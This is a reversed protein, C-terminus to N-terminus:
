QQEMEMMWVVRDFEQIFEEMTAQGDLYRNILGSVQGSGSSFIPSLAFTLCPAINERYFAIEEATTAWRNAVTTSLDDRAWQLEELLIDREEEIVNALRQELEDVRSQMYAVSRDYMMVEIPDNQDPTLYTRTTMRLQEVVYELLMVAIDANQSYPNVALVGMDAGIVPANGAMGLILPENDDTIYDRLPRYMGRSFLANNEVWDDWDNAKSLETLIPTIEELRILLARVGPTNFTPTEGAAQCGLVRSRYIMRFLDRRLDESYEFIKMGANAEAYDDHWAVIFDLLEEYSTPLMEASLGAKEMAAPYWSLMSAVEFRYPVACLRGNLYLEAILHEDMQGVADVLVESGSLDALYKKDRLTVFGASMSLNYVDAAADSQMHRTIAEAEVPYEDLCEVAIEPHQKAFGRIIDELSMEYAVRLTREPLKAPDISSSILGDYDVSYYMGQYVAVPASNSDVEGPILYGVAEPTDGAVRYVRSAGRFYIDDTEPDYIVGGDVFSSMLGITAISGSAPDITVIQPPLITGDPQDYEGWDFRRTLLQGDKYRRLEEFPGELLKKGMGSVMDVQYLVQTGWNATDEMLIYAVDGEVVMGKCQPWEDANVEWNIVCCPDSGGFTGDAQFTARDIRFGSREDDTEEQRMLLWVENGAVDAYQFEDAIDGQVAWGGEVQRYLQNSWTVTYLADEKVFLLRVSTPAETEISLSATTEALATPLLLCLVLVLSMLQILSRKM